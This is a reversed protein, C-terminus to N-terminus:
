SENSSSLAASQKNRREMIGSQIEEVKAKCTASLKDQNKRLCQAIRGEGKEVNACLSKVDQECAKIIDRPQATAAQSTVFLLCIFLIKSIQIM